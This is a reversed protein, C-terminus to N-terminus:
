TRECLIYFFIGFFYSTCTIIVVLQFAKMSYSIQVIKSINNSDVLQNEALEKDREILRHM